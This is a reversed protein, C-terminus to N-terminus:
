NISWYKHVINRYIYAPEKDVVCQRSRMTSLIKGRWRRYDAPIKQHFQAGGWKWIIIAYFIPPHQLLRTGADNERCCASCIIPSASIELRRSYRIARIVRARSRARISRIVFRGSALLRNDDINYKVSSRIRASASRWKRMNRLVRRLHRTYTLGRAKKAAVLRHHYETQELPCLM